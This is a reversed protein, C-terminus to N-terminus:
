EGEKEAEWTKRIILGSKKRDSKKQEIKLKPVRANHPHVHIMLGNMPCNSHGCLHRSHVGISCHKIGKAALIKDIKDHSKLTWQHWVETSSLNQGLISLQCHTEPDKVQLFEFFKGFFQNAYDRVEIKQEASLKENELISRYLGLTNFDTYKKHKPIYFFYEKYTLQNFPQGIKM